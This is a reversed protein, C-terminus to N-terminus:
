RCAVGISAIEHLDVWGAERREPQSGVMGHQGKGPRGASFAPPVMARMDLVEDLGARRRPPDLRPGQTGAPHECRWNRLLFPSPSLVETCRRRCVASTM